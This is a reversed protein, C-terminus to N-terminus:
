PILKLAHPDASALDAETLRFNEAVLRTLAEEGVQCSRCVDQWAEAPPQRSDIELADAGELKAKKAIRVLWHNSRLASM